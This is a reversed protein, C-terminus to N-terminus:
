DPKRALVKDLEARDHLVGLRVVAVIRRTNAIERSPDAALLVLDADRGPLVYGSNAGMFDAAQGTAAAIAQLPTLGAQCLLMLEEHLSRGPYVFSTGSDTGVLIPAGARILGTAMWDEHAFDAKRRANLEVKAPDRGALEALWDRRVVAPMLALDPDSAWGLPDALTARVQRVRLTPTQAIRAAALRVFIPGCAAENDRPCYGGTEAVMHEIDSMGAAIAEDVSVSAPLHGVIRLGRKRAEDAAALFAERPLLTYVKIFDAGEDALQDVAARAEAADAVAISVEAQVPRPGDLIMGAAYLRPAWDPSDAMFDRGARWGAENGGMDRVSTVGYAVFRPLFVKPASPDWLSHVHMDWLGPILTMGRGDIRRYGKPVPAGAPKVAQIRGDRVLVTRHPQRPAGTGDIVGVDVIALPGSPPAALAPGAILAALLVFLGGLRRM